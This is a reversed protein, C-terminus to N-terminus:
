GGEGLVTVETCFLPSCFLLVALLLFIRLVSKEERSSVVIKWACVVCWPISHFPQRSAFCVVVRSGFNDVSQGSIESERFRLQQFVRIRGLIRLLFTAACQSTCLFETRGSSRRRFSFRAFHQVKKEDDRSTFTVLVVKKRM